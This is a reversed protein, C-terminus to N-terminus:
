LRLSDRQGGRRRLREVGAPDAPLRSARWLLRQALWDAARLIMSSRSDPAAGLDPTIHQGDEEGVCGRLVCPCGSSSSAELAKQHAKQRRVTSLLQVPFPIGRGISDYRVEWQM